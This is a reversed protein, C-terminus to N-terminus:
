TAPLTSGPRTAWPGVLASAPLTILRLHDPLGASFAALDEPTPPAPPARHAAATLVAPALEPDPACWRVVLLDHGTPSRVPLGHPPQEWRAYPDIVTVPFIVGLGYYAAQVLHQTM